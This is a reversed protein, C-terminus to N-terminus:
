FVPSSLIDIILMNIQRCDPVKDPFCTDCYIELSFTDNRSDAQLTYFDEYVAIDISCDPVTGSVKICSNMRKVSQVFFVTNGNKVPFGTRNLATHLDIKGLLRNLRPFCSLDEFNHLLVKKGATRDNKRVFDSYLSICEKGSVRDKRNVGAFPELTKLKMDPLIDPLYSAKFIRLYDVSRCLDLSHNIGLKACRRNIFPIDFSTGNYNLYIDIDKAFDFFSLLVSAEDEYDSALFQTVKLGDRDRSLIGILFIMDRSSSLGTTEIDIVAANMGSFYPSNEPTIGFSDIIRNETIFM